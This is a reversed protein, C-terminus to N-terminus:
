VRVSMTPRLGAGSGPTRSYLRDAFPQDLTSYSIFCSYFQIPQHLLSPLYEILQEPLGCGRLFALPLKSSKALTMHDIGCPGQYQCTDLGRANVFSTDIFLTHRLCAGSLDVDELNSFAFSAQTLDTSTLDAGRLDSSQVITSIMRAGRLNSGSLNSYSLDAGTLDAGSFDIGALAGKVGFDNREVMEMDTARMRTLDLRLNPNSKRWANWVPIGRNLIGLHESNAMLLVIAGTVPVTPVSSSPATATNVASDLKRAFPM